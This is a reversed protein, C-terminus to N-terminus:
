AACSASPLGDALLQRADAIDAALRRAIMRNAGVKFRM